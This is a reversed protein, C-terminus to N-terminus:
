VKANDAVTAGLYELLELRNGFVDSVYFRDMRPLLLDDWTLELGRAELREAVAKIDEVEFAPHAKKAPRFDAEAGLHLNVAGARFWCGGRSVLPQPKEIEVFGLIDVYFARAEAEKREPMALQVHDLRLVM